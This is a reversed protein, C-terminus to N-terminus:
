NPKTLFPFFNSLPSPSAPIINKTIDPQKMSVNPLPTEPSVLAIPIPTNTWDKFLQSNGQEGPGTSVDSSLDSSCTWSFTDTDSLLNSCRFAAERSSDQTYYTGPSLLINFCM